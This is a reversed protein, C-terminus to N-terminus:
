AKASASSTRARGSVNELRILPRHIRIKRPRVSSSISPRSCTVCRPRIAWANRGFATRRHSSSSIAGVAWSSMSRNAPSPRASSTRSNEHCNGASIMARMTPTGWLSVGIHSSRATWSSREATSGPPASSALSARSAYKAGRM